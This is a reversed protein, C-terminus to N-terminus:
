FNWYYYMLRSNFDIFGQQIHLSSIMTEFCYNQNYCNELLCVRIMVNTIVLKKRVIPPFAKKSVTLSSTLVEFHLKSELSTKM